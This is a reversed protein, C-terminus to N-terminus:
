INKLYEISFKKWFASLRMQSLIKITDRFNVEILFNRYNFVVLICIIIFNMSNEKCPGIESYFFVDILTQLFYKERFVIM